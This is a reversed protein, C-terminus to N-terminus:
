QQESGCVGAYVDSDFEGTPGCDWFDASSKIPNTTGYARWSGTAAAAPDAVAVGLGLLATVAVSTAVKKPKPPARSRRLPHHV